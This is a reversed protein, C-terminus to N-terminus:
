FIVQKIPYPKEDLSDPFRFGYLTDKPRNGARWEHFKRQAEQTSEACILHGGTPAIGCSYASLRSVLGGETIEYLNRM